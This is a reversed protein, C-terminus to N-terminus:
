RACSRATAPLDQKVRVAGGGFTMIALVDSPRMGTDIFRQAAAYARGQEAPAMATLDFYLVLLRRDRYRADGPPPAVIQAQTTPSVPPPATFASPELPLPTEARRDPLRQFEVFSIAQPEGDEVVVFDNATLGEVARGDKDKVSVTQVILRTGM